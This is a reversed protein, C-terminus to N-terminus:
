AVRNLVRRTTEYHWKGGTASPILLANLRNSVDKITSGEKKWAIMQDIAMQEAEDELMKGDVIQFGFQRKGGQFQGNKRMTAKAARIRSKIVQREYEAFAGMLTRMLIKEPSSGNAGEESASIITVGKVACQKEIFLHLFTDRAIRSFSYIYITDGKKIEELCELLAPRKEIPAGGSIGKDFFIKDMNGFKMEVENLQLEESFQQQNTSQRGYFFKMKFGWQKV